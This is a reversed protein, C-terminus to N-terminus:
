ACLFAGTLNVNLTHSWQKLDMEHVAVGEHNAVGANAVLVDVRGFRENAQQFVEEVEKEQTQDMKLVALADPWSDCLGALQRKASRYTGTVRAGEQLLMSTAVHGIGGSAGTLLIHKNALGLNM